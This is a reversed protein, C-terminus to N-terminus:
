KPTSKARYSRKRGILNEYLSALKKSTLFKQAIAIAEQAQKRSVSPFDRLYKDLSYGYEMFEFLTYIPTRTGKFVPAGSQIEKDMTILKKVRNM